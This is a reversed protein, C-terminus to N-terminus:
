AIFGRNSGYSENWIINANTGSTVSITGTTPYVPNIVYMKKPDAADAILGRLVESVSRGSNKAWKALLAFEEETVRASIIKDKMNEDAKISVALGCHILLRSRQLASAMQADYGVM